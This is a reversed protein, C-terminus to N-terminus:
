PLASTSESSEAQHLRSWPKCAHIDYPVHADPHNTSGRYVWCPLKLIFRLCMWSLFDM